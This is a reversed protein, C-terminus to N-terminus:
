NKVIYILLSIGSQYRKKLNNFFYQKKNVYLGTTCHLLLKVNMLSKMGNNFLQTIKAILHPQYINFVTNTLEHKIRCEIFEELPGLSQNMYKTKIFELTDMLKPEYRIELMDNVYIIVAM